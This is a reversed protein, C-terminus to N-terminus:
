VVGKLASSIISGLSSGGSSKSSSSTPATTKAATPATTSGYKLYNQYAASNMYAQTQSNQMNQQSAQSGLLGAQASAQQAAYYDQYAQLYSQVQSATVTGQQQALGEIQSMTNGATTMQQVASTYLDNLNSSKQQEFQGYLGAQQNAQTQTAGLLQQMVNANNTQGSLVGQLNGAQQQYNNAEAGATTGYYNGQQQTAQPLNALTTNTNAVNQLSTKLDAPNFGYMQQAQSLYNGYLDAPNQMSNTYSSLNNYAQNSQNYSQNYQNQVGPVQKNLSAQQQQGQAYAQAAEQQYTAPNM